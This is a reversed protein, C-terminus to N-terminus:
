HRNHSNKLKNIISKAAPSQLFNLTSIPVLKAILKWNEEKLANRVHSASIILDNQTKKRPIIQLDIDYQPLVAQMAQNYAATTQCYDETGVFRKNINLISAIHHAFIRVDLEAQAKQIKGINENKLFYAPFTATSVVYKDGKLVKVNPLDATGKQILEYRIPFPFVSLDEEVVLVYLYDSKQAATEILYRHGLTFPNCNVICVGIKNKKAPLSIKNQQLYNKYDQLNPTGRELLTIMNQSQEIEKFGLNEFSEANAPATFVFCHYIKQLTLYELLHSVIKAFVQGERYDQHVALCKIVSGQVSGTGLLVKKENLIRVTYSVPEFSLNQEKLFSAIEQYESPNDLNVTEEYFCANM